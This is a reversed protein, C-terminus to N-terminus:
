RVHVPLGQEKAERAERLEALGAETVRVRRSFEENGTRKALEDGLQRLKQTWRSVRGKDSAGGGEGGFGSGGLNANGVAWNPHKGARMVDYLFKLGKAYEPNFQSLIQAHVKKDLADQQYTPYEESTYAPKVPETQKREVFGGGKQHSRRKTSDEPKGARIKEMMAKTVLGGIVRSRVKEFYEPFSGHTSNEPDYSELDTVGRKMSRRTPLSSRVMEYPVYQILARREEPRM